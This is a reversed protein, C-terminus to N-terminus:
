SPKSIRRGLERVALGGFNYQNTEFHVDSVSLTKAKNGLVGLGGGKTMASGKRRNAASGQELRGKKAPRARNKKVIKSLCHAFNDSVRGKELRRNMLNNEALMDVVERIKRKMTNDGCPARREIAKWNIEHGTQAILEALESRKTDM